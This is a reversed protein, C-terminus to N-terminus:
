HVHARSIGSLRYRVFVHFSHPATGYYDLMNDPVHYVTADGGIGIRGWRAEKVDHLYGLTLAAVHSIRHFSVIGPPDPFGLDLLDKAVSEGRGYFRGHATISASWELLYADLIGHIERNEGWALTAALPRSRLSGNFEISATLRAVDYPEFWSPKHIIGGSMQAQWPGRRWQGRVSWSDLWPSAINFRFEDPEEGRFWSAEFTLQGVGVGGTLVGPTIHTSDLYHHGLPAQPNDRASERHMFPTPGLAAPGVLDAEGVFTVSGRRIRYNAGLEMILDHPHQRDILPGGQYSEGTQFVQPSGAGELTLAELSAMGALQLQGGGVPRTAHAMFWNQSEFASLDRFERHQYNYGAFVNVDTMWTWSPAANPAGPQHHEHQAAPAPEQAASSTAVILIFAALISVRM